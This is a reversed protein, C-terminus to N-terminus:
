FGVPKNQIKANIVILIMVIVIIDNVCKYKQIVEATEAIFIVIKLMCM